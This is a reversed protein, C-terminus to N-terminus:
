MYINHQTYPPITNPGETRPRFLANASATKGNLLTITISVIAFTPRKYKRNKTPTPISADENRRIPLFDNVMAIAPIINGNPVPAINEM